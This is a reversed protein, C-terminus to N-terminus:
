LPMIEGRPSRGGIGAPRGQGLGAVGDGNDTNGDGGPEGNRQHVNRKSSYHHLVRSSRHSM